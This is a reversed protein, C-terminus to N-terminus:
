FELIIKKINHRINRDNIDIMMFNMKARTLDNYIEELKEISIGMAYESLILRLDRKSMGKGLWVYNINQRIIKPTGFYSQSIYISSYGLKRGRIFMEGIKNDKTLVQDDYIVLGNQGKEMKQFPPYQQDEYYIEINKLKEQLNDYLPEPAKTIIILKHFTNHMEYLINMLLNSKGGGSACCILARFPLKIKHEEEYPNHITDSKFTKYFNILRNETNEM